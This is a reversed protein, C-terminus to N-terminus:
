RSFFNFPTQDFVQKFLPSVQHPVNDHLPELRPDGQVSSAVDAYEISLEKPPLAVFVHTIAKKKM